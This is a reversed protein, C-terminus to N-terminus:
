PHTQHYSRETPEGQGDCGEHDESVDEADNQDGKSHAVLCIARWAAFPLLAFGLVDSWFAVMAAM